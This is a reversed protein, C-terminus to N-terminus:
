RQHWRLATTKILSMQDGGRLNSCNYEICDGLSGDLYLEPLSHGLLYITAAGVSHFGFYKGGMGLALSVEHTESAITREANGWFVSHYEIPTSNMMRFIPFRTGATADNVQHVFFSTLLWIEGAPIDYHFLSGAAPNNHAIKIIEGKGLPFEVIKSM